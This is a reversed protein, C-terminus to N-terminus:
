AVLGDFTLRTMHSKTARAQLSDPTIRWAPYYISLIFIDMIHCHHHRSYFCRRRLRSFELIDVEEPHTRYVAVSTAQSLLVFWLYLLIM